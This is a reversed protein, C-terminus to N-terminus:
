PRSQLESTHEESRNHLLMSRQQDERGHKDKGSYLQEGEPQQPLHLHSVVVFRPACRIREFTAQSGLLALARRVRLLLSRAESKAIRRESGAVLLRRDSKRGAFLSLRSASFRTKLRM